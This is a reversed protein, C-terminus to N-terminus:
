SEYSRWTRRLQFAKLTPQRAALKILELMDRVFPDKKASNVMMQQSQKDGKENLLAVEWAKGLGNQLVRGAVLGIYKPASLPGMKGGGMNWANTFMDVVFNKPAFNINYRTHQAGIWGTIDNALDWLPRENKFSYRIAELIHKEGVQLVDISGDDNYHFINAGGKYQSMDTRDREAYPIHARVDGLIVGTGNPNKESKPLANKIAQTLNRRGARDASRYADSM